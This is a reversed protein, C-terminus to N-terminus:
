STYTPSKTVNIIAKRASDKCTGGNTRLTIEADKEILRSGCLLNTKMGPCYLVKDLHLIRPKEM